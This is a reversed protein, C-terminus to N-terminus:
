LPGWTDSSTGTGIVTVDNVSKINVDVENLVTYTLKDTQIQIAAIGTNDPATYGASARRSSISADILA